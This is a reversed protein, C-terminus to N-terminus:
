LRMPMVVCLPFAGESQLQVPSCAYAPMAGSQQNGAIGLRVTGKPLTKLADQLYRGNFCLEKVTEPEGRSVDVTASSTADTESNTSELLIGGNFTVKVARMWGAERAPRSDTKCQAATIRQWAASVTELGVLMADRDVAITEGIAKPVVQKYNPFEGEIGRVILTYGSGQFGM